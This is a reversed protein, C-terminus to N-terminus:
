ASISLPKGITVFPSTRKAEKMEYNREKVVADGRGLLCHCGDFKLGLVKWLAKDEKCLAPTINAKLRDIAFQFMEVQRDFPIRYKFGSPDKDETLYDFISEDRGNAKSANRLGNYSTACLWAM